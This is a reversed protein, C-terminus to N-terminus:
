SSYVPQLKAKNFMLKNIISQKMQILAAERHLQYYHKGNKCGMGCSPEKGLTM